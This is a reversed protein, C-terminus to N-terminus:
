TAYGGVLATIDDGDYRRNLSPALRHIYLSEAIRLALERREQTLVTVTFVSTNTCQLRHEYVASQPTKMHESIRDHLYRVTSGIYCAGCTCTCKYVVHHRFCLRDDQVYCPRKKCTKQPTSLPKCVRWRLASDHVNIIRTPLHLRSLLHHFKQNFCESIYPLRLWNTHGHRKPKTNPKQSADMYASIQTSSYGNVVLKGRLTKLAESKSSADSCLKSVRQAENSIANRKVHNALASKAHIFVSSKTPKKTGSTSYETRISPANPISFHCM